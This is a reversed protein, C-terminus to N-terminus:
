PLCKIGLSYMRGVGDVMMDFQDCFNEETRKCYWVEDWSVEKGTPPFGKLEGYPFEKMHNATIKNWVIVETDNSVVYKVEINYNTFAERFEKHEKTDKWDYKAVVIEEWNESTIDGIYELVLEKIPKKDQGFLVLSSFVILVFLTHTIKKITEM